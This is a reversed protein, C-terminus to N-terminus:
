LKQLSKTFNLFTETIQGGAAEKHGGGNAIKKALESMSLNCNKSRRFSVSGSQPNVVIGIDADYMEIITKAVDNIAFEALTSVVRKKNGGISIEGIHIDLDALTQQLKRNYVNILNKQQPNFGTFGTHFVEYMKQVRDGTFGWFLRNLDLSFPITLAYSDYDDIINALLQQERTISIKEKYTDLILKTCSSCPKVLVKAFQYKHKNLLHSEHHDIIVINSKDVIDIHQSV